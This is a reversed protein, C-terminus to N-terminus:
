LDNGLQNSKFVAESEDASFNYGTNSTCFSAFFEYKWHFSISIQLVFIIKRCQIFFGVIGTLINM